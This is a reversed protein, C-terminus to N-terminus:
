SVGCLVMGWALLDVVRRPFESRVWVGVGGEGLAAVLAQRDTLWEELFACHWSGCIVVRISCCRGFAGVQVRYPTVPAWCRSVLSGFMRGSERGVKREMFMNLPALTRVPQPKIVSKARGAATQALM